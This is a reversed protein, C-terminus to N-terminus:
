IPIAGLEDAWRALMARLRRERLYGTDDGELREIVEFAFSEAGHANWADQLSRQTNRGLRLAFWIRNRITALDPARGVWVQGSVTCRVAYIGSEVKREKHAAVAAKREEVKMGANEM